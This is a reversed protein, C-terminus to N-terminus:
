SVILKIVHHRNNVTLDVMYIGSSLVPLKIEHLGAGRDQNMIVNSVTKGLIDKVVLTIESSKMLNFSVTAAGAAPNPYVSLGTQLDDTEDIGVGTGTMNIEDIYINNGRDSVNEFKFRVRPKNQVPNIIVTEQRWQTSNPTFSNTSTTGGTTSLTAGSKSYSSYTWNEGCDTSYALKLQDNSSSNRQAYAVKFSINIPFSIGTFNLSPTIWENSYGATNTYNNVKISYTGNGASAYNVRDWNINGNDTNKVWGDIGPFSASNEFDEVYPIATTAPGSVRIIAAKFMTDSGSSNGAILTADYVGPTAYTVVPSSDTSTAPNGGPFSWEWSTVTGKWSQDTFRVPSNACTAYFDTKFDAVPICVPNISVDTGTAVLNATTWLNNRNSVSSNLCAHMRDRQGATFMVDCYSYDMFNQYNEITPPSCVAAQSPQPCHDWGQTLPTDFVQDDGLCNVGPSNSAGWPHYLNFHHGAEHTLTRTLNDVYTYWCMIGDTNNAGGPLHAYAAANQNELSHAVWINLYKNNPWIMWNPNRKSSDNANYTELTPIHEIGNTCNGIPDITALRFEIECDAAISKFPQIIDATDANLKRYDINMRAVADRITQDSVNEPGYNHLIHFVVPIIYIQSSRRQVNQNAIYQATFQELEARNRQYQPDNQILPNTVESTYCRAREQANATAFLGFMAILLLSRKM